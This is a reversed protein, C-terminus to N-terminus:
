PSLKKAVIFIFDGLYSAPLSYQSKISIKPLFPIGLPKTIMKLITFGNNKIIKSLSAPDYEFLHTPDYCFETGKIKCILKTPYAWKNPCTIILVGNDELIKNIKMLAKEPEKIHEIVHQMYIADYKGEIEYIDKVQFDMDPYKELAINIAERNIDVCLPNVNFKKKLLLCFEGTNCGIELIRDGKNPSYLNLVEIFEFHSEPHKKEHDRAYDSNFSDWRKDKTKKENKM